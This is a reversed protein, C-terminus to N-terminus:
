PYWYTELDPMAEVEFLGPHAWSVEFVMRMDRANSIDEDELVLGCDMSTSAAQWKTIHAFLEACLNQLHTYAYELCLAEQKYPAGQKSLEIARQIDEYSLTRSDIPETFIDAQCQLFPTLDSQSMPGQIYELLQSYDVGPDRDAAEEASSSTPDTAQVDIEHRLWRSFVAFQRREDGAYILINHGLLRLCRIVDLIATFEQTSVNFIWSSDHYRALGRLTTTM